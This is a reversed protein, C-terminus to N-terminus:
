PCCPGHAEDRDSEAVGLVNQPNLFLRHTIRDTSSEQRRSCTHVTPKPHHRAHCRAHVHMTGLKARERVLKSHAIVINASAKHMWPKTVPWIRNTRRCSGHTTTRIAERLELVLKGWVMLLLLWLLLLLLLLLM